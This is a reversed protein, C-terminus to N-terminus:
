ARVGVNLVIWWEPPIASLEPYSRIANRVLYARHSSTVFFSRNFVTPVVIEHIYSM